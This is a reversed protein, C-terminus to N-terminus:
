TKSPLGHRIETLVPVRGSRASSAFALKQLVDSHMLDTAAQLPSSAPSRLCLLYSRVFSSSCPLASSIVLFPVASRAVLALDTYCSAVPQVPRPLVYRSGALSKERRWLTWFQSQPAGLRRDLPYRHATQRATGPRPASWEGADLASTLLPAAIGGSGM